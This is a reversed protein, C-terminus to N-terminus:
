LLMRSMQSPLDCVCVCEGYVCGHGGRVTRLSSVLGGGGEEMVGVGEGEGGEEEGGGGDM